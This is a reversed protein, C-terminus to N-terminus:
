WDLQKYETTARSHNGNRQENEIHRNGVAGGPTIEIQRTREQRIM